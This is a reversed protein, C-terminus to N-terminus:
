WRDDNRQLRRAPDGADRGNRLAKRGKDLRTKEDERADREAENKGERKGEVRGWLRALSAAGLAALAGLIWIALDSM